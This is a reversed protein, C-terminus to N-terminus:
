AHRLDLVARRLDRALSRALTPGGRLGRASAPAYRLAEMRHLLQAVAEAQAGYRQVVLRALTGPPVHPGSRVGAAALHAQMQHYARVWPDQRQREWWAWAAGATAAAVILGILLLSLDQWSPSRFGLQKLLDLQRGRSYNLVWQNWANNLAEWQNRLRRWLEPNVNDFTRGSESDVLKGDILLRTEGTM